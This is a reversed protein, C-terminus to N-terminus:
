FSLLCISSALMAGAVGALSVANELTIEFSTPSGDQDFYTGSLSRGAEIRVVSGDDNTQETKLTERILEIEVRNNSATFDFIGEFDSNNRGDTEILSAGQTKVDHTVSLPNMATTTDTSLDATLALQVGTWESQTDGMQFILMFTKNKLNAQYWKDDSNATFKMYFYYKESQGFMGITGASNTDTVLTQKWQTNMLALQDTNPVPSISAM